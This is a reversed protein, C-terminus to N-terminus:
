PGSHGGIVAFSLPCTRISLENRDHTHHPAFQIFRRQPQFQHLRPDDCYFLQSRELCFGFFKLSDGDLRDLCGFRFQAAQRFM